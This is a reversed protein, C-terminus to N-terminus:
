DDKSALLINSLCDTEVWQLNFGYDELYDEIAGWSTNFGDYESRHPEIYALRVSDLYDGFGDLILKEAGECDIKLVTPSELGDEIVSDARRIQVTKGGDKSDSTNIEHNDLQVSGDYDGLAEPHIQVQLDNRRKVRKLYSRAKKNPEFSNVKGCVQAAFATYFGMNAGIDWFVDDQKINYMMNKMVSLEGGM